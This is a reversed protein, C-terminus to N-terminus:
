DPRAARGSGPGELRDGCNSEEDPNSPDADSRTEAGRLEDFLLDLDRLIQDVAANDLQPRDIAANLREVLRRARELREKATKSRSARIREELTGPDPRLYTEETAEEYKKAKEAATEENEAVSEEPSAEPRGPSPAKRSTVKERAPRATLPEEDNAAIRGQLEELDSRMELAYRQYAVPNGPDDRWLKRLADLHRELELVTRDLVAKRDETLPDDGDPSSADSTQLSRCKCASRELITNSDGLDQVGWAAGAVASTATAILLSATRM